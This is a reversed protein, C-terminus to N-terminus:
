MVLTTLIGAVGLRPAEIPDRQAALMAMVRTLRDFATLWGGLHRTCLPVRLDEQRLSVETGAGVARFEVTVLTEGMDPFAGEWQWTYVLLDPPRVELFRGHVAVCRASDDRRMAIRYLGGVRADVEIEAAHWGEPCWWLKLADPRTWAHFIRDPSAEFRHRLRLTTGTGIAAHDM